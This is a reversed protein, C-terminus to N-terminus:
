LKIAVQTVKGFRKKRISTKWGRKYMKKTKLRDTM